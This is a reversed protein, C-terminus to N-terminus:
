DSTGEAEPIWRPGRPARLPSYILRVLCNGLVKLNHPARDRIMRKASSAAIEGKWSPNLNLVDFGRYRVFCIRKDTSAPM